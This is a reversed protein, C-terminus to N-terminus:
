LKKQLLLLTWGALLALGGVPTITGLWKINTVSMLYLSGSFLLIGTVFFWFARPNVGQWALWTLLVAHVLHYLSATKWAETMQNEALVDKLGHAGFAGLAVALFGLTSALRFSINTPKM